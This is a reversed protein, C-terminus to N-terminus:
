SEQVTVIIKVANKNVIVNGVTVMLLKPDNLKAALESADFEDVTATFGTGDTLSIQITTM